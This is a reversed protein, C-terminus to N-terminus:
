KVPTLLFTVYKVGQYEGQGTIQGNDNIANAAGLANIAIGVSGSLSSPGLLTVTYSQAAALTAFLILLTSLQLVRKVSPVEAFRLIKSGRAM